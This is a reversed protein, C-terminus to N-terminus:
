ASRNGAPRVAETWGRGDFYRVMSHDRPDPYWGPWPGRHVPPKHSKTAAAVSFVVLAVVIALGGGIVIFAIALHWPQLGGLEWRWM